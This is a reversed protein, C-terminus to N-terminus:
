EFPQTKPDGSEDTGLLEEVRQEAKDLRAQATRAVTVGEEFLRLSDELPIEGEELQQVIVGLREAAQEFSLEDTADDAAAQKSKSKKERAM